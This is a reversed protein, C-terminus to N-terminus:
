WELLSYYKFSVRHWDSDGILHHDPKKNGRGSYRRIHSLDTPKHFEFITAEKKRWILVSMEELFRLTDVRKNGQAYFDRLLLKLNRTQPSEVLPFDLALSDLRNQFLYFCGFFSNRSSLNSFIWQSTRKKKQKFCVQNGELKKRKDREWGRDLIVEISEELQGRQTQVWVLRRPFLNLLFRREKENVSGPVHIDRMEFWEFSFNKFIFNRGLSFTM